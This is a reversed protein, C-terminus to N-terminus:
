AIPAISESSKQLSYRSSRFLLNKDGLLTDGNGDRANVLEPSKEILAKISPIDGKRLLDFVEQSQAAVALTMLLSLILAPKRM